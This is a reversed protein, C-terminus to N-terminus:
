RILHSWELLESRFHFKPAMHSLERVKPTLEPLSSTVQKLESLKSVSGLHSRLDGAGLGCEAKSRGM